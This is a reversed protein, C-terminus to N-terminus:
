GSDVREAAPWCANPEIRESFEQIQRNEHGHKETLRWVVGYGDKERVLTCPKQVGSHAGYGIANASNKTEPKQEKTGRISKRVHITKCDPTVTTHDESYPDLKIALLEGARLGFGAALAYMIRYRGEAQQIVQSLQEPTRTPRHQKTPDLIPLDMYENNWERPFTQRGDSDIASAVVEKMAGVIELIAEPAHIQEPTLRGRQPGKPGQDHHILTRAPDHSEADIRVTECKTPHEVAGNSPL